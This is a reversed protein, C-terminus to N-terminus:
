QKQSRNVTPINEMVEFLANPYCTTGKYKIMQHKRGVIPGLRPSTRGCSCKETHLACIDGTRFRVLPFGEVGFTTITLEGLQGDSVTNGKEDLIEVLILELHQHGGKGALCETFATAMETSAYTSHLQIPWLEKIKKGLSNLTFDKNRISEGICIAKKVSSNRYNISNNEAYEILKILFSPVIILATPKLEFITDWQLAPLKPGIRIMGASLKRAGMTYALGAIFRRDITTTLQYIENAGGGACQLSLMENTAVRQLDNETFPITLANGESGSTNSYDIIQKTSVSWFEKSHKQLDSKNITPIKKFNEISQIDEIKISHEIFFKKYFPSHSQVYNLTAKIKEFQFQEIEEKSARAILPIDM